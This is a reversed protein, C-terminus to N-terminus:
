FSDKRLIEKVLQYLRIKITREFRATKTENCPKLQNRQNTPELGYALSRIRNRFRTFWKRWKSKCRAYKSISISQRWNLFGELYKKHSVQM